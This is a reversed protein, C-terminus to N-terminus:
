WRARGRWGARWWLGQPGSHSLGTRGACPRADRPPSLDAQFSILWRGDTNVVSDGARVSTALAPTPRDKSTTVQNVFVLVQGARGIQSVGARSTPGPRVGKDRRRALRSAQHFRPYYDLPPERSRAKGPRRRPEGPSTLIARHRSQGRRCGTTSRRRRHAPGGTCGGTSRHPPSRRPWYCCQRPWRRFGRPVLEAEAAPGRHCPGDCRRNRERDREDPTEADSVAVFGCGVDEM